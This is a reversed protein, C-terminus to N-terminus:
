FESFFELSRLLSITTWVWYFFVNILVTTRFDYVKDSYGHFGLTSNVAPSFLKASAFIWPLINWPSTRNGNRNIIAIIGSLCMGLFYVSPYLSLLDCSFILWRIYMSSILSNALFSFSKSVRICVTIIYLWSMPISNLMSFHVMCIIFLLFRSM